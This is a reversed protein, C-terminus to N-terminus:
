RILRQPIGILYALLITFVLFSHQASAGWLHNKFQGLEPSIADAMSMSYLSVM